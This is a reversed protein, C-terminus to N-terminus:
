VAHKGLDCPNKLDLPDQCCALKAERISMLGSSVRRIKFFDMYCSVKTDHVMRESLAIENTIMDDRGASHQLMVPTSSTTVHQSLILAKIVLVMCLMLTAARSHM